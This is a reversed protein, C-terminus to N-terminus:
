ISELTIRVRRQAILGALQELGGTDTSRNPPIGLAIAWRAVFGRQVQIPLKALESLRLGREGILVRNWYGSLPSRGITDACEKHGHESEKVAQRMFGCLDISNGRKLESVDVSNGQEAGSCVEFETAMVCAASEAPSDFTM